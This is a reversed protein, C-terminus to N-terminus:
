LAAGAVCFSSPPRWLATRFSCRVKAVCFSKRCAVFCTQIDRLAVGAARFSAVRCTFGGLTARGYPGWASPQSRNRLTSRVCGWGGSGWLSVPVKSRMRSFQRHELSSSSLCCLDGIKTRNASGIQHDSDTSAFEELFSIPGGKKPNYFETFCSLVMTTHPKTLISDCVLAQSCGNPQTCPMSLMSMSFNQLTCIGKGWIHPWLLVHFFPNCVLGWCAMAWLGSTASHCRCM